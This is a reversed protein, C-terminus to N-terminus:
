AAVALSRTRARMAARARLENNAADLVRCVQVLMTQDDAEDGRLVRAVRSLHKSIADPLDAVRIPEDWLSSVVVPEDVLWEAYGSTGVIEVSRDRHTSTYDCEVRSVKGSAHWLCLHVGTEWATAAVDVVTDSPNLSIALAVDHSALDWLAGCARPNSWGRRSFRVTEVRGLENAAERLAEWGRMYMPTWDVVVRRYRARAASVVREADGLSTAGPKAVMVDCHRTLAEVCLYAHADESAAVVVLRPSAAGIAEGLRDFVEVGADRAAALGDGQEVIGVLDFSPHESIRRAYVHGFAGYGVLLTRTM